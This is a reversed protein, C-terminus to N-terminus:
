RYIAVVRDVREELVAWLADEDLSSSAPLPKPTDDYSMSYSSYLRGPEDTSETSYLRGIEDTSETSYLRGIEDTSETSYLRGVEDSDNSYGSQARYEGMGNSSERSGSEDDKHVAQAAAAKAIPASGSTAAGALPEQSLLLMDGHQIGLEALSKTVDSVALV